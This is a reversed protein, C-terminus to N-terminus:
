QEERCFFTILMKLWKWFGVFAGLIISAGIILSTYADLCTSDFHGLLILLSMILTSTSRLCDASVHLFAAFMNVEKASGTKKNSKYFEILCMIDFGMGGLAFGLTIWGNVDDEDEAAAKGQCVMVTGWSEQAALITFYTLLGLSTAVVILQSPVHKKGDRKKCEVFINGMYTFADVGMSICDMALAQSHAIVAAFYQVVTILAFLFASVALARVNPTCRRQEDKQTSLKTSQRTSRRSNERRSLSEEVVAHFVPATGLQPYGDYEGEGAQDVSSDDSSGEPCSESVRADSLDSRVVQAASAM